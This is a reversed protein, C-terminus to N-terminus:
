VLTSLSYDGESSSLSCVGTDSSSDSGYELKKSLDTQLGSTQGLKVPQGAQIIDQSHGSHEDDCSHQLHDGISQITSLDSQFYPKTSCLQSRPQPPYNIMDSTQLVQLRKSEREIINVDFELQSIMKKRIDTNRVMDAIHGSNTQIEQLLRANTDRYKNVESDFCNIVETAEAQGSDALVELTSTLSLVQEEKSELLCNIRHINELLLCM